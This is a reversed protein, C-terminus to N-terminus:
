TLAKIIQNLYLFTYKLDVFKMIKFKVIICIISREFKFIASTHTGNEFVDYSMEIIVKFSFYM